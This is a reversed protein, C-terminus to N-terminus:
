RQSLCRQTGLDRALGRTVGGWGPLRPLLWMAELRSQEQPSWAQTGELASLGEVCQKSDMTGISKAGM